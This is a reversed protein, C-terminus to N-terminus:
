ILVLDYAKIRNVNKKPGVNGFIRLDDKMIREPSGADHGLGDDYEIEVKGTNFARIVTGLLCMTNSNKSKGVAVRHGVACDAEKRAAVKKIPKEEEEKEVVPGRKKAPQEPQVPQQIPQVPISGAFNFNFNFGLYDFVAKIMEATVTPTSTPADIKPGRKSEMIKEETTVPTPTIEEILEDEDNDEILEDEDNDEEIDIDDIDEDEDDDSEEEEIDIDDIDEDEDDGGDILHQVAEERSLEMSDREDDARGFIHNSHIDEKDGNDLRVTYGEKTVSVIRGLFFMEDDLSVIVRTGKEYTNM